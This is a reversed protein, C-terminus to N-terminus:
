EKVARRHERGGLKSIAKDWEEDHPTQRIGEFDFRGYFERYAELAEHPFVALVEWGSYEGIGIVLVKM